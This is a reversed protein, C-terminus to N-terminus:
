KIEGKYEGICVPTFNAPPASGNCKPCLHRNGLSWGKNRMYDMAWSMGGVATWNHHHAQTTEGCRSCTAILSSMKSNGPRLTKIVRIM